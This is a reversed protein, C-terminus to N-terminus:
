LIHELTPFGGGKSHYGGGGLITGRPQNPQNGGAGGHPTSPKTPKGGGKGTTHITQNEKSKRTKVGGRGGQPTSTKTPQELKEETEDFVFGGTHTSPKTPKRLNEEPAGWGVWTLM